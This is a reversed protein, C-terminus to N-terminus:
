LINKEEMQAPQKSAKFESFRGRGWSTTLWTVQPGATVQGGGHLFYREKMGHYWMFYSYHFYVSNHHLYSAHSPSQAASLLVIVNSNGAKESGCLELLTHPTM